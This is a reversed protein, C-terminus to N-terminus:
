FQNQRALYFASLLFNVKDKLQITGQNLDPDPCVLISKAGQILILMSTFDVSWLMKNETTEVEEGLWL